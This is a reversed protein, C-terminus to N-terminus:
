LSSGQANRRTISLLKGRCSRSCTKATKEPYFSIVAVFPRNCIICVRDVTPKKSKIRSYNHRQWCPNSCYRAFAQISQFSQGCGACIFDLQSRSAMAEKGHESHWARGEDSRHWEAALPRIEALHQSQKEPDKLPRPIARHEEASLCELNSPDNNFTDRDRHHVDYGSPVEEGSAAEWIAVHLGKAGIRESNRTSQSLYYRRTGM